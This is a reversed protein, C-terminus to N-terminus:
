AKNMLDLLRKAASLAFERDNIHSDEKLVEVKTGALGRKLADFFIKDEEPSHFPKGPADLMSLGRQPIMLVTPGKAAKLKCCLSGAIREAEEPVMRMLTNTPNHKYLKRGRYAEPVTDYQAFNVTDVAGLSVVQPIAMAGAATLRDPGATLVGGVVEDAIETTTIDLVGDFAGSRILGEMTRGGTGNAHFVVVEYGAKELYDKAYGVCPTTIGFMTAAIRGRVPDAKEKELPLKEAGLLMGCIAMTANKYVTRSLFNVGSVDVVAPMMLIDSTGVFPRINGSAMTSVMLKPVGFPLEQMAPTALSTGGSGGMSIVGDFRGERYLRPLIAKLGETMASTATARDGALALALIDYGAEAAVEINTVDVPCVPPFVGMHITLTSLGMEEAVSKVYSFEEGKTDFTGCIALTKM